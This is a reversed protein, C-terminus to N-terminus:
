VSLLAILRRLMEYIVYVALSMTALQIVIFFILMGLMLRPFRNWREWLIWPRLLVLVSVNGLSILWLFVCHAGPCPECNSTAISLMGVAVAFASWVKCSRFRYTLRYVRFTM